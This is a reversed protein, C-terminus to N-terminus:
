KIDFSIGNLYDAIQQPTPYDIGLRRLKRTAMRVDMREVLRDEWEHSSLIHGFQCIQKIDTESYYYCCGVWM